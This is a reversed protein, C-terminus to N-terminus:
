DSDLASSTMFLPFFGGFFDIKLAIEQENIAEKQQM